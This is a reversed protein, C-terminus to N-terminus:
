LIKLQRQNIVLSLENETETTRKVINEQEITCQTKVSCIQFIYISTTKIKM